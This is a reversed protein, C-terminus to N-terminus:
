SCYHDTLHCGEEKNISCISIIHVLQAPFTQKLSLIHLDQDKLQFTDFNFFRNHM